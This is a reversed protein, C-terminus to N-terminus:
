NQKIIEFNNQFLLEFIYENSHKYALVGLKTKMEWVGPEIEFYDFISDTNEFTFAFIGNPKMIREIESFVQKVPHILHFVGNSIVFDFSNNEIPYPTNELNHLIHKEGIKKKKCVELIKASGDIGTIECGVNQFKKSSEGTGIGLDLVSSQPKIFENIESFIVRPGNWKDETISKDYNLAFDDALKLNEVPM